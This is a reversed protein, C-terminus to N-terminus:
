EIKNQIMNHCNAIEIVNRYNPKDQSSRKTLCEIFLLLPKCLISGETPDVRLVRSQLTAVSGTGHPVVDATIDIPICYGYM